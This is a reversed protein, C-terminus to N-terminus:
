QNAISQRNIPWQNGMGMLHGLGRGSWPVWPGPDRAACGQAQDHGMPGMPWGHCASILYGPMPWRPWWYAMLLCSIIPLIYIYVYISYLCMYVYLANKYTYIYIYINFLYTLHQLCILSGYSCMKEGLENKVLLCLVNCSLTQM